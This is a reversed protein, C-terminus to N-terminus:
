LRSYMSRGEYADTCLAPRYGPRLRKQADHVLTKTQAPTRKGVVLSVLLKSDAAMATHDGM